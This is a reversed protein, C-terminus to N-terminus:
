LLTSSACRTGMTWTNNRMARYKGIKEAKLMGRGHVTDLVDTILRMPVGHYNYVIM